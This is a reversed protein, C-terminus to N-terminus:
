ILALVIILGGLLGMYNWMKVNKAAADEASMLAMKLQEAALRLHKGQDERDSLGISSGLGRLIGLDNRGLASKPCYHELANNWAERASYGRHSRLEDALQKFFIAVPQEVQEALGRFADPLPTAVYTIQTELIQLANIFQRLEVPRRAYIRAMQWGTLGTASIVLVGGILKFVNEGGM